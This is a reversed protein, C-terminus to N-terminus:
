NGSTKGNAIIGLIAAKAHVSLGLWARVVRALDADAPIDSDQPQQVARTPNQAAM